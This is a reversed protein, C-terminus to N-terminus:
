FPNAAVARITSDTAVITEKKTNADRVLFYM